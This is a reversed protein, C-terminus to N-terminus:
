DVYIVPISSDPCGADEMEESYSRNEEDIHAVLKNMEELLARYQKSDIGWVEICKALSEELSNLQKQNQIAAETWEERINDCKREKFCSTLLPLMVIMIIMIMKKM